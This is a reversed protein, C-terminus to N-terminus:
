LITWSFVKAKVCRHRGTRLSAHIDLVRRVETDFLEAYDDADTVKLSLIV